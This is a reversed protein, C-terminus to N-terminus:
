VPAFNVKDEPEFSCITDGIYGYGKERLSISQKSHQRATRHDLKTWLNKGSYFRDGVWLDSFKVEM